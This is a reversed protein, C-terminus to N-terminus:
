QKGHQCNIRVRCPCSWELRLGVNADHPTTTVGGLVSQSEFHRSRIGTMRLQLRLIEALVRDQACSSLLTSDAPRGAHLDTYRELHAARAKRADPELQSISM